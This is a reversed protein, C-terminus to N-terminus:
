GTRTPGGVISPGTNGEDRVIVQVADGKRLPSEGRTRLTFTAPGSSNGEVIEAGVESSRFELRATEWNPVDEGFKGVILWTNPNKDPESAPDDKRNEEIKAEYIKMWITRTSAGCHDSRLLGTVSRAKNGVKDTLRGM